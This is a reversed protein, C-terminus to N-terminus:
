WTQAWGLVLAITILGAVQHGASIYWLTRQKGEFLADSATGFVYALILLIAASLTGVAGMVVAFLIVTFLTTFVQVIMAPVANQYDDPAKRHPQADMWRTGFVAPQYWIAGVIYAAATAALVGWWNLGQVISMIDM